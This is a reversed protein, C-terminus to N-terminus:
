GVGFGRPWAGNVHFMWRIRRVNQMSLTLRLGSTVEELNLSPEDRRFDWDCYDCLLRCPLRQMKMLAWELSVEQRVSESRPRQRSSLPELKEWEKTMAPMRGM